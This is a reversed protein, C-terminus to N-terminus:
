EKGAEPESEEVVTADDEVETAKVKTRSQQPPIAPLLKCSSIFHGNGGCRLCKNATRRAELVDKTVWQARKQENGNTPTPVKNVSPQWDMPEGGTLKAPSRTSANEVNVFRLEKVAKQRADTRLVLRTFEHYQQPIDAVVLAEMLEKSLMRKLTHIKIDDPWDAGGADALTREYKPLFAAMAEKGQRMSSLKNNAKEKANPDGLAQEMYALLDTPDAKQTSMAIQVFTKTMQAADGELRSYVYVMRETERGIAAQDVLLKLNMQLKWADWESRKGSYKPPDPLIPKPRKNALADNPLNDRPIEQGSPMSVPPTESPAVQPDNAPAAPTVPTVSAALTAPVKTREDIEEVKQSVLAMQNTMQQMFLQLWQPPPPDDNPQANSSQTDPLVNDGM